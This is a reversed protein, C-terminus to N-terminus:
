DSGSAAVLAAIVPVGLNATVAVATNIIANVIAIAKDAKAQRVKERRIRDEIAQRKQDLQEEIRAKQETTDIEQRAFEERIEAEEEEGEATELARDRQQDREDQLEELSELQNRTSEEVAEQERELESIRADSISKYLDIIGGALNAVAQVEAQNRELFSEHTEDEISTVEEGTQKALEIRLNSLKLELEGVEDGNAQRTQIEEDLAFIQANLRERTAQLTITLIERESAEIISQRAEQTLNEASLLAERRKIAEIVLENTILTENNEIDSLQQEFAKIQAQILENNLELIDDNKSREIEKEREVRELRAIEIATSNGKALVEERDFLLKSLELQTANSM